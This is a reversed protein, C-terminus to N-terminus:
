GRLRLAMRQLMEARKSIGEAKARLLSRNKKPDGSELMEKKNQTFVFLLESTLKLREMQSQQDSTLSPNMGEFATVMERIEAVHRELYGMKGHVKTWDVNKNRLLIRIEGAELQAKKAEIVIKELHEAAGNSPGTERAAFSPTAVLLAVAALAVAVRKNRNVLSLITKM